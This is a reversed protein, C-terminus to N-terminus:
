YSSLFSLAIGLVFALRSSAALWGCGDVWGPNPLLYLLGLLLGVLGMHAKQAWVGHETGCAPSVAALPCFCSGAQNSSSRGAFCRRFKLFCLPPDFPMMPTLWFAGAGRWRARLEQQQAVGRTQSNSRLRLQSDSPHQSSASPLQLLEGVGLVKGTAWCLLGLAKQQGWLVPSGWSMRAANLSQAPIRVGQDLFAPFCLM